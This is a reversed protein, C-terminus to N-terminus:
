KAFKTQEHFPAISPMKESRRGFVHRQLKELQASLSAFKAAYDAELQTLRARLEEAEERWPCHHDQPLERMPSCVIM